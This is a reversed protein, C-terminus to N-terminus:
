QKKKRSMPKKAEFIKVEGKVKIWRLTADLIEPAAMGCIAYCGAKYAGSIDLDRIGYWISVGTIFAALTHRIAKWYTMGPEQRLLLRTIMGGAGIVGTLWGDTRFAELITQVDEPKRLSEIPPSM